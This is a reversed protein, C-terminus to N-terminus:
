TKRLLRALLAVVAWLVGAGLAAPALILMGWGAYFGFFRALAGADTGLIRCPYLEGAATRCEGMDSLIVAGALAVGWLLVPGLTLVAMIRHVWKM